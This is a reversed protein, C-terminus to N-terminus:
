HTPSRASKFCLAFNSCNQKEAFRSYIIYLEVIIVHFILISFLVLRSASFYFFNNFLISLHYAVFRIYTYMSSNHINSITKFKHSNHTHHFGHVYCHTHCRAIIIQIPMEIKFICEQM